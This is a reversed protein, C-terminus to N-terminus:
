VCYTRQSYEMVSLATSSQAKADRSLPRPVAPRPQPVARRGRLTGRPTGRCAARGSAPGPATRDDISPFSLLQHRSSAWRASPLWGNYALRLISPTNFRWCWLAPNCSPEVALTRPRTLSSCAQVGSDDGGVRAGMTVEGGPSAWGRFVLARGWWMELHALFSSPGGLKEDTEPGRRRGLDNQPLPSVCKESERESHGRDYGAGCRLGGPGKKRWSRGPVALSPGVGVVRDRACDGASRM